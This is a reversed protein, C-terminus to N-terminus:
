ATEVPVLYSLVILLRSFFRQKIGLEFPSVALGNTQVSTLLTLTEADSVCKMNARSKTGCLRYGGAAENTSVAFMMPTFHATKRRQLGGSCHGKSSLVKSSKVLGLAITGHSMRRKAM